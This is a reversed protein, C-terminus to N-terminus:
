EIEDKTVLHSREKISEDMEIKKDFQFDKYYSTLTKTHHTIATYGYDTDEVTTTYEMVINEEVPLYTEKDIYVEYECKDLQSTGDLNEINFPDTNMDKIKLLYCETGDHNIELVEFCDAENEPVSLLSSIDYTTIDDALIKQWLGIVSNYYYCYSEDGENLQFCEVSSATDLGERITVETNVKYHFEKDKCNKQGVITTKEGSLVGNNNKKDELISIKEFYSYKSAASNTKEIIEKVEKSTDKYDGFVLAYAKQRDEPTEVENGQIDFKKSIIEKYEKDRQEEPSLSPELTPLEEKTDELRDSHLLEKVEPAGNKKILGSIFLYLFLLLLIGIATVQKKHSTIFELLLGKREIFDSMKDDFDYDQDKKM